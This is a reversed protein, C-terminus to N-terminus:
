IIYALAYGTEKNYEIKAISWAAFDAEEFTGYITPQASGPMVVLAQRDNLKVILIYANDALQVIYLGQIGGGRYTKINM